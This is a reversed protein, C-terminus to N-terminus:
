SVFVEGKLSTDGREGLAGRKPGSQARLESKGGEREEAQKGSDRGAVPQIEASLASGANIYGCWCCSL